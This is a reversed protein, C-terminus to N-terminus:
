ALDPMEYTIEYKPLCQHPHFAIYESNFVSFGPKCRRGLGQVLLLDSKEMTESNGSDGCLEVMECLEEMGVAKSNPVDHMAEATRLHGELKFASGLVSCVLMRFRRRGCVLAPQSCYRHSKAALDALYIGLGFM